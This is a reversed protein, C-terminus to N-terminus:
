WRDLQVVRQQVYAPRLEPLRPQGPRGSAMEHAPQIGDVAAPHAVQEVGALAEGLLGDSESVEKTM